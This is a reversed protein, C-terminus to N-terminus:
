TKILKDVFPLWLLFVYFIEETTYLGDFQRFGRTKFHRWDIWEIAINKLWWHGSTSEHFIANLRSFNTFDFHRLKYVLGSLCCAPPFSSTLFLFFLLLLFLFNVVRTTHRRNANFDPRGAVVIVVVIIISESMFYFFTM